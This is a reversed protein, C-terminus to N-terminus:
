HVIVTITFTELPEVDEEWPRHYVLSLESEGAAVAQFRLVMIGGAGVLDSEPTFEAEGVPALVASDLAGVEWSYGTSPNGELEIVLEQDIALEVTKGADEAHLIIADAASTCAALAIALVLSLVPAFNIKSM